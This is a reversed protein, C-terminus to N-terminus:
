SVREVHVCEIIRRTLTIVIGQQLNLTSRRQYFHVFSIYKFLGIKIPLFKPFLAIQPLSIILIYIVTHHLDYNQLNTSHYHALYRNQFRLDTFYKQLWNIPIHNGDNSCSEIPFITIRSILIQVSYSELLISVYLYKPTLSVCPSSSQMGVRSHVFSPQKLPGLSQLLSKGSSCFKKDGPSLYGSCGVLLLFM